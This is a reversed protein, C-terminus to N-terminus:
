KPEIYQSYFNVYYQHYNTVNKVYAVTEGGRCYGYKCVPDKYYQPKSKALLMKEVNDEWKNPDLGYKDALAIADEVHGPGANYAALIFKSREEHPLETYYNAQVWRLYKTGAYINKDPVFLEEPEVNAHSSAVYPMIQMLGRAGMWSEKSPDFRSEQYILASLLMWDWQIRKAEAKIIRDFRSVRTKLVEPPTYKLVESVRDPLTSYKKLVWQYDSTNYNKQLWANFDEQLAQAKPHFMFAVPVKNRIVVNLDLNPHFRQVLQAEHLDSITSPIKGEAVEELLTEKSSNGPAYCIDFGKPPPLTDEWLYKVYPADKIVYIDKKVDQGLKTIKLPDNKRQALVLKTYYLRDSYLMTHTTEPPLVYSAASLHAGKTLISDRINEIDHVTEIELAWGKENLYLKLLEYELGMPHGKYIYYTNINNTILMKLKKSEFVDPLEAEVIEKPEAEASVGNHKPMRSRDLTQNCAGLICILALLTTTKQM